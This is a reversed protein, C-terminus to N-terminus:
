PYSEGIKEPSRETSTIDKTRKKSSNGSQFWDVLAEFCACILYIIHKLPVGFHESSSQFGDDNDKLM